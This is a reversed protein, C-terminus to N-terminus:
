NSGPKKWYGLELEYLVSDLDAVKGQMSRAIYVLFWFGDIRRIRSEPERVPVTGTQRAQSERILM